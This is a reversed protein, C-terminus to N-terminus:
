FIQRLLYSLLSGACAHKKPFFKKTKCTYLILAQRSEFTTVREGDAEKSVEVLDVLNIHM